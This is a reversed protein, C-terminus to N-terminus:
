CDRMGSCLDLVRLVHASGGVMEEDDETMGRLIDNCGEEFCRLCNRRVNDTGKGELTDRIRRGFGTCYLERM